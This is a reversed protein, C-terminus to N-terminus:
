PADGKLRRDTEVLNCSAVDWCLFIKVSSAALVQFRMLFTRLEATWATPRCCVRHPVLYLDEGGGEGGANVNILCIANTRHVLSHCLNLPSYNFPMVPPHLFRKVYAKNINKGSNLLTLIMGNLLILHARCAAHMSLSFHYPLKPRSVEPSTVM